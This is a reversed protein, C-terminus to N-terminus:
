ANIGVVTIYTDAFDYEQSPIHVCKLLWEKTALQVPNRSFVLGHM